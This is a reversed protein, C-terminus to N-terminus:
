VYWLLYWSSPNPWFSGSAQRIIDFGEVKSFGQRSWKGLAESGRRTLKHLPEAVTSAHPPLFKGYFQVSGTLVHVFLLFLTRRPILLVDNLRIWESLSRPGFVGAKNPCVLVEAISLVVRRMYANYCGSWIRYVSMQQLEAWWFTM